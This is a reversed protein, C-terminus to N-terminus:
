GGEMSDEAYYPRYINTSHIAGHYGTKMVYDVLLSNYQKIQNSLAQKEKTGFDDIVLNLDRRLVEMSIGNGHVHWRDTENLITAIERAREKKMGDTVPVKRSETLNWNKFKYKALWDQLLSITLARAQEYAYLEAQDFGDIMLQVEPLTITGKQAKELLGEWKKLYGLASIMRGTRSPVQPDIPGLRSYYDMHIADGSLALVTGASFAHSPIVFEVNAYHHRLTDVVRQVVEIYGGLTTLVVHLNNRTSGSKKEEVVDRIIDDVGGVIPGQVALVDSKLIEELSEACKHLQAEILANANLPLSNM